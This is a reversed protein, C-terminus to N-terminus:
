TQVLVAAAAGTYVLSQEFLIKYVLSQEFLIKNNNNLVVGQKSRIIRHASNQAVFQRSQAM